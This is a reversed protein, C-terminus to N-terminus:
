RVLQRSLEKEKGLIFNEVMKRAEEDSYQVPPHKM